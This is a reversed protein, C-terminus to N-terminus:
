SGLFPDVDVGGRHPAQAGQFGIGLSLEFVDVEDVDVAGKVVILSLTVLALILLLGFDHAGEELAHALFALLAALLPAFLPADLLAFGEDHQAQQRRL